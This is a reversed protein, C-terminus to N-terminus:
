RGGAGKGEVKEGGGEGDRKGMRKEERRGEEKWYKRGGEGGMRGEERMREERGGM